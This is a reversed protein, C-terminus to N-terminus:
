GIIATLEKATNSWELPVYKKIAMAKAGDILEAAISDWREIRDLFKRISKKAVDGFSL